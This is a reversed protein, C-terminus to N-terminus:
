RAAEYAAIIAPLDGANIPGIHQHRIIGRGDVIFTEPVGASGLNLQVRRDVDAGISRFPDGYATLFRALDEPRDRVAIGDIPIGRRALEELQPAEQRCPICWSAFINVLRPQGRRLDASSLGPRGAMGPALAFDPMPRGVLASPTTKQAPQNLGNLFFVLFILFGALPVWLILRFRKM